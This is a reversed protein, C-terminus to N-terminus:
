LAACQATEISCLQSAGIASIHTARISIGLSNSNAAPNAPKDPGAGTAELASEDSTTRAVIHAVALAPCHTGGDATNVALEITAGDPV